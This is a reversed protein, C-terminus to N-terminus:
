KGRMQNVARRQIERKLAALDRIEDAGPTGPRVGRGTLAADHARKLNALDALADASSGGVQVQHQALPIEGNAQNQDATGAVTGCAALVLGAALTGIVVKIRTIM